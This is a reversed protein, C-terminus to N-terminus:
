SSIETKSSVICQQKLKPNHHNGNWLHVVTCRKNRPNPNLIPNDGKECNQLNFLWKCFNRGKMRDKVQKFQVKLFENRIAVVEKPVKKEPDIYNGLHEVLGYKQLGKHCFTVAPLPLDALKKTVKTVLVPNDKWNDLQIDVVNYIFITGGIAIKFAWLIKEFINSSSSNFNLTTINTLEERAASFLHKSPVKAAKISKGPRTSQRNRRATKATKM